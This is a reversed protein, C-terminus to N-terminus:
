PTKQLHGKQRLIRNCTKERRAAYASNSGAFVLTLTKHRVTQRIRMAHIVVPVKGPRDNRGAQIEKGRNKNHVINKFGDM